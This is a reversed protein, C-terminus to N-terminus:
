PLRSKIRLFGRQPPTANGLNDPAHRIQRPQTGRAPQNPNPSPPLWHAIMIGAIVVGVYLVNEPKASLGVWCLVLFTAALVFGACLGLGILLNRVALRATHSSGTFCWVLFFVAILITLCSTLYMM